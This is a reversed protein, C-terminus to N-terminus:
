KRQMLSATNFDSILYNYLMKLFLENEAGFVYKFHRKLSEFTMWLLRPNSENQNEWIKKFGNILIILEEPLIEETADEYDNDHIPHFVKTTIGHKHINFHQHFGEGNISVGTLYKVIDNMLEWLPAGFDIEWFEKFTLKQLLESKEALMGYIRESLMNNQKLLHHM